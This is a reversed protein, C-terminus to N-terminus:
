PSRLIKITLKICATIIDLVDAALENIRPHISEETRELEVYQNSLKNMSEIVRRQAPNDPPSAPSTM